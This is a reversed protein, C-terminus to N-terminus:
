PRQRGAPPQPDPRGEGGVGPGADQAASVPFRGRWTPAPCRTATLLERGQRIHTEAPAKLAFGRPSSITVAKESLRGPVLMRPGLLTQCVSVWWGGPGSPGTPYGGLVSRPPARSDPPM